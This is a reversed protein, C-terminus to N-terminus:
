KAKAMAQKIDFLSSRLSMGTKLKGLNVRTKRGSQDTTTWQVLEIPNNTFALQIRGYEKHASDQATIYTYKEDASHAIISKNGNLKIDKNLLFGIPSKNLPYQKAATNSKPDVIALSGAGAVVLAGNAGAYEFRMRGPRSIYLTGKDKTGNPNKQTFGAKATKFSELYKEIEALTPAAAMLPTAALFAPSALLSGIFIRRDM